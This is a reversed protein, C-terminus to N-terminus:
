DNVEPDSVQQVIEVSGRRSQSYNVGLFFFGVGLDLICVNRFQITCELTTQNGDMVRRFVLLPRMTLLM